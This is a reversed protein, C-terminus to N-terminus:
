STTSMTKTPVPTFNVYYNRKFFDQSDAEDGATVGEFSITM